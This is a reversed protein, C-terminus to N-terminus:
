KVLQLLVMGDYFLTFALATLVLGLSRMIYLYQRGCLLTKSRAVLIALTVKSGVLLLYFTSLFVVVTLVGHELARTNIPAGVTLWFLYPHPSLANVLIGKGLSRARGPKLNLEVASTKIGQYGMYLLLCGGTLSIIGLIQQSQGLRSALFLTAGIIPLDTIIPAVAIRIGAKVDHQLTESIVLTFLPGPALGASLGLVTALAIFSIM